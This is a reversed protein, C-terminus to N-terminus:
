DEHDRIMKKLERKRQREKRERSRRQRPTEEKSTEIRNGQTDFEVEKDRIRQALSKGYWRAKIPNGQRDVGKILGDEDAM